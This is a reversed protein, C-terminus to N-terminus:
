GEEREVPVDRWEQGTVKDTDDWDLVTHKQQLIKKGDREVFRLMETPKSITGRYDLKVLITM